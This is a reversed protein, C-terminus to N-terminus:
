KEAKIQDPNEQLYPLSVFGSDSLNDKHREWLKPLMYTHTEHFSECIIDSALRTLVPCRTIDMSKQRLRFGTLAPNKFKELLENKDKSSEVVIHAVTNCKIPVNKNVRVWLAPPALKHKQTGVELYTADLKSLEEAGVAFTYGGFRPSSEDKTSFYCGLGGTFNSAYAKGNPYNQRIHQWNIIEVVKDEKTAHYFWPLKVDKHENLEKIKQDLYESVEKEMEQFIKDAEEKVKWYVRKHPNSIWNKLFDEKRRANERDFLTRKNKEFYNKVRLAADLSKSPEFFPKPEDKPLVEELPKLPTVDAKALPNELTPEVTLTPTPSEVSTSPFVAVTKDVKQILVPLAIRLFLRKIFQLTFVDITFRYFTLKENLISDHIRHATKQWDKMKQQNKPNSIDLHIVANISSCLRISQSFSIERYGNIHSFGAIATM